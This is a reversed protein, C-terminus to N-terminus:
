FPYKIVSTDFLDEELVIGDEMMRMTVFWNNHSPEHLDFEMIAKWPEKHIRSEFLLEDYEWGFERDFYKVKYLATQFTVMRLFLNVQLLWSISLVQNKMGGCPFSLKLLDNNLIGGRLFFKERMVKM